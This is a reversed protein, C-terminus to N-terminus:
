AGAVASDVFGRFCVLPPLPPPSMTVWGVLVPIRGQGHCTAVDGMMGDDGVLFRKPDDDSPWSGGAM